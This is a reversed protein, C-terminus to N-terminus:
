FQQNQILKKFSTNQQSLLSHKKSTKANELGNMKKAIEEQFQDIEKALKVKAETEKFDQNYKEVNKQNGAYYYVPMKAFYLTPKILLKGARSQVITAVKDKLKIATAGAKTQYLYMGGRVAQSISAELAAKSTNKAADVTAQSARNIPNKIFKPTVKGVTTATKGLVAGTSKAAKLVTWKVIDATLKVTKAGFVTLGIDFFVKTAVKCIAQSKEYPSLCASKPWMDFYSQAILRAVTDPNRTLEAIFEALSSVTDIPHLVAHGVGSVMDWVEQVFQKIIGIGCGAGFITLAEETSRKANDASCTSTTEATAAAKADAKDEAADPAEGTKAALLKQTVPTVDKALKVQAEHQSAIARKKGNECGSGTPQDLIRQVTGLYAHNDGYGGKRTCVDSDNEKKSSDCGYRKGIMKWYEDGDAVAQKYIQETCEKEEGHGYAWDQSLKDLNWLRAGPAESARDGRILYHSEDM